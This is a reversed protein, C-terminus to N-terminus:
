EVPRRDYGAYESPKGDSINVTKKSKENSLKRMIAEFWLPQILDYEPKLFPESSKQYLENHASPQVLVDISDTRGPIVGQSNIHESDSLEYSRRRYDRSLDPNDNYAVM